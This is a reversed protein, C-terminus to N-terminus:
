GRRMRRLAAGGKYPIQNLQCWEKLNAIQQTLSDFHAKKISIMEGPSAIDTNASARSNRQKTVSKRGTFNDIKDAQVFDMKKESVADGLAVKLRKDDGNVIYYRIFKALVDITERIPVNSGTHMVLLSRFTAERMTKKWKKNFPRKAYAVATANLTCSDALSANRVKDATSHIMQQWTDIVYDVLLVCYILTAIHGQGM